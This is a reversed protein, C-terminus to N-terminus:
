IDKRPVLTRKLQRSENGKSSRVEVLLEEEEGFWSRRKRNVSSYNEQDILSLIM